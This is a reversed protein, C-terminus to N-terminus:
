SRAEWKRIFLASPYSVLLYLIGVLTYPELYRYSENGLSQAQGLLVPLGIIFLLATEKYMSVVYNGLAPASARIIQPIMVRRWLRAQPLSLARVADWQGRPLQNIGARYVEATYMSYHIGLVITGAMFPSLTVGYKPLIYFAAFIQVLQPTGRVFYLIITTVYNVIPMRSMRLLAIGWGGILALSASSVTIEVTLWLGRLLNPIIEFAYSWDWIPM